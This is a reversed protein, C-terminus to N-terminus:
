RDRPNGARAGAGELALKLNKKAEGFDPRISLAERCHGIAKDFQSTMIFVHALDNHVVYNKPDVQLVQQYQEISESYRQLKVLAEALHVRADIFTPLLHLAQEYQKLARVTDGSGDWAIGLQLYAIALGPDLQVARNLHDIAERFLGLNVLAVGLNVRARAHGPDMRVAKELTRRANEYQGSQAYAVGLNVYPQVRKPKLDIAKRYAEIAEPTKRASLLANGLNNFVEVTGEPYITLAERCLEEVDSVYGGTQLLGTLTSVIDLYPTKEITTRDRPLKEYAETWLTLPNWSVAQLHTVTLLGALALGCLVGLIINSARLGRLVRRDALMQLMIEGLIMLLGAMPLIARYGFFLHQPIFLSEPTLSIVFFLIGFAAIPRNRIFCIGLGVLAALGACAVVTIPPNLLSQSITMARILVITGPIPFIAMALYSFFVRSETLLVKSLSLGAYEYYGTLRKVAIHVGGSESGALSHTISFYLVLPVIVLASIRLANRGLEKLNGRFLTAEALLLVVPVTIVNEKCLMGAFFLAGTLGYGVTPYRYRGSRTALYVAVTSFYFLCALIAERQWIYLTVLSQLPHVAFVFGLFLSLALRQSLSSRNEPVGIELVLFILLSLATGAGSVLAINGLRFYLPDMGTTLYNLYLTAMFAPRVPIINMVDWLSNRQFVDSRALIFQASDYIMPSKLAPYNLVLLTVVFLPFALGVWGWRIGRNASYDHQQDASAEESNNVAPAHERRYVKPRWLELIAGDWDVRM